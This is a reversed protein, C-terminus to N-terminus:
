LAILFLKFCQGKKQFPYIGGQKTELKGTDDGDLLKFLILHGM